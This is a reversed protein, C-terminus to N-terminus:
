GGRGLGGVARWAREVSEFREKGECVVREVESVKVM